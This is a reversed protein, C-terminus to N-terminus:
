AFTPTSPSCSLRKDLVKLSKKSVDDPNVNDISIQLWELGASEPAQHKRVHIWQHHAMMPGHPPDRQEDARDNPPSAVWITVVSTGVVLKENTPVDRRAAGAELFRRVRQLLHLGPQVAADPVIGALLPHDTSALASAAM